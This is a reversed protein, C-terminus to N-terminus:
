RYDRDDRYDRATSSRLAGLIFGAAV